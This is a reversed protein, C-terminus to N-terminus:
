SLFVVGRGFGQQKGAPFSHILTLVLDWGSLNLSELPL